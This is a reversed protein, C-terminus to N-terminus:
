EIDKNIMGYIYFDRSARTNPSPEYREFMAKLETLNGASIYEWAVSESQIVHDVHMQFKWGFRSKQLCIEELTNALWSPLKWDTM